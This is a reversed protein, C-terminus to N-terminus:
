WDAVAARAPSTGSISAAARGLAAASSRRRRTSSSRRSALQITGSSPASRWAHCISSRSLRSDRACAIRSAASRGEDEGARVKREEVRLRPAVRVALPHRQDAAANRDRQEAEREDRCGAQAAADPRAAGQGARRSGLVSIRPSVSRPRRSRPVPSAALMTAAATVRPATAAALPQRRARRNAMGQQRAIRSEDHSRSRGRRRRGAPTTLPSSLPAASRADSRSTTTSPATSATMTILRPSSSASDPDDPSM